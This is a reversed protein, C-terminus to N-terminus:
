NSLRLKQVSELPLEIFRCFTTLQELGGASAAIGWVREDILRLVEEPGKVLLKVLDASIKPPKRMTRHDGQHIKLGHKRLWSSITGEDAEVKDAIAKASMWKELYMEVWVKTNEM